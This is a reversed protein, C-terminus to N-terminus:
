FDLAHTFLFIFVFAAFHLAMTNNQEKGENETGHFSSPSSSATSSEATQVCVDNTTTSYANDNMTYKYVHVFLNQQKEPHNKLTM